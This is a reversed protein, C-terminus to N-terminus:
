ALMHQQVAYEILEATSKFALTEMIKYKHFAITGAKVDLIYAVDKM